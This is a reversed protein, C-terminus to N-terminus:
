FRYIACSYTIEQWSKVLKNKFVKVSTKYKIHDPLQNWFHSARFSFSYLGFRKTNIKHLTLLDSTRINNIVDKKRSFAKWLILIKGQFNTYIETLLTDIQKCHVSIDQDRILLEELSMHPENYVIRLGRKLIQGIQKYSTKSCFMKIISCYIFQSLILNICYNRKNKMWPM